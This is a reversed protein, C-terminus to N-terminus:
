INEHECNFLATWAEQELCEFIDQLTNLCGLLVGTELIINKRLFLCYFACTFFMTNYFYCSCALNANLGAKGCELKCSRAFFHAGAVSDVLSPSPLVLFQFNISIKQKSCYKWPINIHPIFVWQIIIKDMKEDFMQCIQHNTEEFCPASEM